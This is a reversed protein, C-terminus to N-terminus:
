HHRRPVGLHWTIVGGAGIDPVLGSTDSAYTTNPPLTDVILTDEAVGNGDNSYNIGYVVVGGPRAHGPTNWKNISLDPVQEQFVNVVTDDDPEVYRVAVDQGPQIDWGEAAFDCFFSGGDAVVGTIVISPYPWEWVECRVTLTLPAFWPAHITGSITDADADLVGDITGVPNVTATLAAASATIADGPAIDPHDPDWNWEESRFEGSGDAQGTVTAKIGGGDAVTVSVTAFPQTNAVVWDHAYNVDIFLSPGPTLMPNNLSKTWTIGNTSTAVGISTNNDYYMTYVGNAYLVYPNVARGKDWEGGTGSLVPDAGGNYKTWTTEDSSTAYGTRGEGSGWASYWMQYDSGIHLVSPGWIWDSEWYHAPDRSFLPNTIALTWTIGNPSTAYATYPAPGSGDDGVTHLWMKYLSDEYIISPGHVSVNNWTDTDLDLVPNGAYKTWNIGDTSTAYGIRWSGDPGRGAYWMKYSTPSEKIVFPAELEQSDWEGQAGVDMVPNSAHKTWNVGDPSTAYGIRGVGYLDLGIYWMKYTGGDNIVAPYRVKNGDWDGWGTPRNPSAVTADPPMRRDHPPAFDPPTRESPPPAPAPPDASTRAVPATDDPVMQSWTADDLLDVAFGPNAAQAEAASHPTMAWLLGLALSLGLFLSWFRCGDL